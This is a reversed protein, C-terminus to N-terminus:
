TFRNVQSEGGVGHSDLLYIRTSRNYEIGRGGGEGWRGLREEAEQAAPSRWRGQERGVRGGANKAALETTHEDRTMEMKRM